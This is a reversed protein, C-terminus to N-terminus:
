LKEGTADLFRRMTANSVRLRKFADENDGKLLKGIASEMTVLVKEEAHAHRILEYAEFIKASMLVYRARRGHRTIEVPIRDAEKLVQGFKKSAEAATYSKM